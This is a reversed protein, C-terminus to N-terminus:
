DLAINDKHIATAIWVFGHDHPVSDRVPQARGYEKKKRNAALWAACPALYTHQVIRIIAKLMTCAPVSRGTMAQTSERRVPNPIDM